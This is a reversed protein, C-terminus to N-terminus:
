EGETNKLYINVDFQEKLYKEWWDIPIYMFKNYFNNPNKIGRYLPYIMSLVVSLVLITLIINDTSDAYLLLEIYIKLFLSFTLVILMTSTSTSTFIGVFWYWKQRGSLNKFYENSMLGIAGIFYLPIIISFFCIAMFIPNDLFVDWWYM